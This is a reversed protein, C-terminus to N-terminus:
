ENVTEIENIGETETESESTGETSETSSETENTGETDKVETNETVGKKVKPALYEFDNPDIPTYGAPQYFRLLDKYVIEDSMQLETAAKDAIEKCAETGELIEGTVNSYCKGKVQVIEPSVFDGNRFLAWNRHDPSLLDSGLELYDKTDVGLLHLITSRVDVQGGYQQQIGGKVGPVHILLPVRQLGTNLTPTIEEVGLVKAMAENHNESIGYHDGYMVIVTNDYLGSAKLDNFFQEIAEDMYHAAQFYQDVVKDGTDGAPFETDEPDM